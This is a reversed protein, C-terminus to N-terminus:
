NLLIIYCLVQLMIIPGGKSGDTTYFQLDRVQDFVQRLYAEAYATYARDSTRPFM